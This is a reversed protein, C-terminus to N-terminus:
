SRYWYRLLDPYNIVNLAFVTRMLFFSASMQFAKGFHTQPAARVAFRFARGCIPLSRGLISPKKSASLKKRLASPKYVCLNGFCPSAESISRRPSCKHGGSSREHRGLQKTISICFLLPFTEAFTHVTADQIHSLPCSCYIWSQGPHEPTVTIYTEGLFTLVFNSVVQPM